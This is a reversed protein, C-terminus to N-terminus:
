STVGADAEEEDAGFINGTDVVDNDAPPTISVPQGFDFMDMSVTVKVPAEGPEPSMTMEYSMRRPLGDADLWVDGPILPNSGIEALAESIFKRFNEPAAASAKQMDITFKYHTTSTGRVDEVGVTTVDQAGVLFAVNQSPDADQMQEIMPALPNDEGLSALDLRLWHKGGTEAAIGPYQMYMAQDTLVMKVKTGAKREAPPILSSMDMTMSMRPGNMDMLGDAGFSGDPTGFTMTFAMTSIDAVKESSALVLDLPTPAATTSTTSSAPAASKPASGSGGGCAALTTLSLAAVAVVRDFRPV